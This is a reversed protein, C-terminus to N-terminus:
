KYSGDPNYFFNNIAAMVPGLAEDNRRKHAKWFEETALDDDGALILDLINIVEDRDQIKKDAEEPSLDVLTALFTTNAKKIKRNKLWKKM